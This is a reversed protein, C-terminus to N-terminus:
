RSGDFKITKGLIQYSGARVIIEDDSRKSSNIGEALNTFADDWSTGDGKGTALSSVYIQRAFQNSSASWDMVAWYPTPGALAKLAYYRYSGPTGLTLTNRGFVLNNFTGLDTWTSNDNSGLVQVETAHYTSTGPFGQNLSIFTLTRNGRPGFDYAFIHPFGTGQSIWTTNDIGDVANLEPYGLYVTSAYAGGGPAFSYSVLSLVSSYTGTGIANVAAVRFSYGATSGAPLGPITASTSTSTGDNFTTWTTGNVSYQVVYDTIASGGNSAPAAWSLTATSSSISGSLGTPSGPAVAPLVAVASSPTGDGASSVALIKVQYSAGNNLGSIVLPSTMAAPSRDTWTSGNDISYKYNSIASGGNSSQTFAISVRGDGVTAVLGTPAPPPGSPTTTNSSASPFGTGYSNMASVRFVYASSNNLGTVTTLTSTSTGDVFTTWNFGMDSSYQIVYDTIPGGGIDSPASWSLLAQANGATATPAAPIGPPQPAVSGATTQYAGSNYNPSANYAVGEADVPLLENTNGDEDLDAFDAPRASSVIGLASSGAAIKLGDDATFWIGDAGAPRAPDAFQPNGRVITGTNNNIVGSTTLSLSLTSYSFSGSQSTSNNVDSVYGGADISWNNYFINGFGSLQAQYNCVAGGWRSKNNFFTCFYLELKGANSSTWKEVDIAGGAWKTENGSFITNEIRATAGRVVSLAGGHGSPLGYSTDGAKPGVLNNPDILNNIFSCSAINLLCNSAFIAGGNGGNLYGDKDSDAGVRAQNGEFICRKLSAVMHQGSTSTKSAQIDLAGGDGYTALNNKFLCDSARFNFVKPASNNYVLFGGREVAVNNEVLSNRIVFDTNVIIGGGGVEHPNTGAPIVSGNNPEKYNSNNANGGTITLGDLVIPTAQNVAVVVHYANEDRSSDPPWTASDNGNFDGSLITENSTVNRQGLQTETGAFGGYIEAGGKLVFTKSRADTTVKSDTYATPKYTGAAVWVQDGERSVADIGSQLSTFANAWSTGNNAGTANAKVYITKAFPSPSGSVETVAWYPTPGALGKLLYYRYSGLASLTLTNRGFILNNFTGLDTWTSNDNSGLVQVQTAHYTNYGPLGQTLTISNLTKGSGFDYGLVHPFGAGQSLWATADNDDFGNAVPYGTYETSAHGGGDSPFLYSQYISLKFNDFYAQGSTMLFSPEAIGSLVPIFGYALDADSLTSFNQSASQIWDYGGTPGDADYYATLTKTVANWSLKLGVVTASSSLGVSPLSQWGPDQPMNKTNQIQRRSSSVDFNVGLGNVVFLSTTASTPASAGLRLSFYNPVSLGTVVYADVQMEWNQASPLPTDWLCSAQTNESGAKDMVYNLRESSATLFSDHSNFGHMGSWRPSLGSTFVDEGGGVPASADVAVVTSSSALLRGAKYVNVSYTGADTTKLNSIFYVPDSYGTRVPSLLTGNKYWNFTFSGTDRVGVSLFLPQGPARTITTPLTPNLGLITGLFPDPSGSVETM